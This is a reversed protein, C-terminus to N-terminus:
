RLSVADTDLYQREACMVTDSPIDGGKLPVPYRVFVADYEPIAALQSQRYAAEASPALWVIGAQALDMGSAAEDVAPGLIFRDTMEFRGTAVCGRFALAPTSLAAAAIVESAVACCVAIPLGTMMARYSEVQAPDGRMKYINPKLAVGIVITDSLFSAGVFELVNGQNTALSKRKKEDGFEHNM